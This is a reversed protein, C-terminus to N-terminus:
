AADEPSRTVHRYRALAQKRAERWSYCYDSWNPGFAEWEDLGVKQAGYETAQDGVYLWHTIVQERPDPGGEHDVKWHTKM